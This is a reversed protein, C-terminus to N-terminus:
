SYAAGVGVNTHSKKLNYEGKQRSYTANATVKTFRRITAQWKRQSFNFFFLLKHEKLCYKVKVVKVDGELLYGYM